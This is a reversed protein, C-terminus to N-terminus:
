YDHVRAKPKTFSPDVDGLASRLAAKEAAAATEKTRAEKDRILKERKAKKAEEELMARRALEEGEARRRAEEEPARKAREEAIWADAKERQTLEKAAEAARADAKAQEAAAAAEVQQQQRAEIRAQAEAIKAEIKVQMVADAKATDAAKEEASKGAEIEASAAAAAESAQRKAEAELAAQRREIMAQVEEETALQPAEEAPAGTSDDTAAKKFTWSRELKGAAKAKFGKKELRAIADELVPNMDSAKKGTSKFFCSWVKGKMAVSFESYTIKNRHKREQPTSALDYKLLLSWFTDANVQLAEAIIDIENGEIKGDGNSDILDFLRRMPPSKPLEKSEMERMAACFEAQNLHGDKDVDFMQIAKDITADPWDAKTVECRKKVADKAEKATLKGDGSKDLLQFTKIAVEESSIAIKWTSAGAGM